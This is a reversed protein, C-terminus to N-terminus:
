EPEQYGEDSDSPYDDVQFELNEAKVMVRRIPQMDQVVVRYHCSAPNWNLVHGTKGNLQVDVLLGQIVVKQAQTVVDAASKMVPQEASSALSM